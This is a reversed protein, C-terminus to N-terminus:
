RWTPTPRRPRAAASSVIPTMTTTAQPQVMVEVWATGVGVVSADGAADVVLAMWLGVM